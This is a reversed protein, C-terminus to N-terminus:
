SLVLELVRDRGALDPHIVVDAGHCISRALAAVAQGQGAGIEVLVAGGRRVLQSSSALLRHVVTLGGAGGMLAMRPECARVSWPLSSWERDAIYPPNSVLLDVPGHMSRFLDAQVLHIRRELGHRRVNAQAVRLAAASLDTAFVRVDPLHTALAVAICGSGTGVDVVVRPKREISLEVLLETEPRPILVDPTVSFELGFFEVHGTLYPLPYGTARRSLFLHYDAMQDVSLEREPHALLTTRALGMAHALLVEAELRPADTISQLRVVGEAIHDAIV